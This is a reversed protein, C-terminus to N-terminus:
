EIGDWSRPIRDRHIAAHIDHRISNLLDNVFQRQDRKTM